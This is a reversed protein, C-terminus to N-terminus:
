QQRNKHMRVFTFSIYQNNAQNMEWKLSYKEQSFIVPENPALDFKAIKKRDIAM